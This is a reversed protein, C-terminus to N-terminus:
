FNICPCVFLVTEGDLKQKLSVSRCSIFQVPIISHIGYPEFLDEYWVTVPNGISNVKPHCKYWSLYVLLHSHVVGDIYVNHYLFHNIKAPRIFDGTPTVLATSYHLDTPEGLLSTDWSVYVTSSSASRSSVCGIVKSNLHISTYQLYISAVELSTPTKDYLNSYLRTINELELSDLVHRISHSPLSIQLSKISWKSHSSHAGDCPPHITEAVSGRASVHQHFHSQFDDKFDDPLSYALISNENIFRTMFQIEISRNNTPMSGLVGNYREFAFLWFGHIPGYDEICARLHCHMHMNPTVIDKGYLSEVRKCFQLLLADALRIDSISVTYKCMIRCALVFHRWCQLHEGEILDHLVLPSYYVTWNKWQDASFGAFKSSIKQPIRGVDPPVVTSNVREQITNVDTDSLLCALFVKKFIHKASGLFLNHMPDVINMRPADFYPLELLVSYRCGFKSAVEERGSKTIQNKHQLAKMRHDANTRLLWSDRNFGSYDLSGFSGSFRRLCRACGLAASHSLFGCAKRGAPMDCAVCLLACRIIKRGTGNVEMEIGDWFQLLEDVFPKLYSNIDEEPEHPGPILGILLVNEVKFRDTRPLNMVTCYIAGLSYQLHKYPQFFDMNMTLAICGSDSLLAQGEYQQYSNWINGDYIDSLRDPTTERQRWQECAEFFGPRNLLKQLSPKLGLYCYVLYPYFVKRGTALEVSKVLNNRCPQRMRRQPHNPFQIYSCLKGKQFRGSGEICSDLCYLSHCLSCVVYRTFRVIGSTSGICKRAVYLSTPFADSLTLVLSNGSIRGLVKFFVKLFGLIASVARDTLRFAAQM